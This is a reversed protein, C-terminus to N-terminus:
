EQRQRQRQLPSILIVKTKFAPTGCEFRRRSLPAFGRTLKRPNFGSALAGRLPPTQPSLSLVQFVAM